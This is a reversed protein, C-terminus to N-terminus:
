GLKIPVSVHCRAQACTSDLPAFHHIEVGHCSVCQVNRLVSSDSELHTRHGATQSIRQWVEKQGTIHCRACVGNPVRAHPGIREPRDSVWLYLQRASAFISQQHCDHCSLSDHESQVFRQYAPGMVHCGTCFGNDHQMYNWSVRGFATAGLVLVATAGLLAYQVPRRRTALWQRITRRRRWLYVALWAAVGAAVFVGGIQVWQPVSQLLFRVVSAVGGPLPPEIPATHAQFLGAGSVLLIGPGPTLNMRSISGRPRADCWRSRSRCVGPPAWRVASSRSCPRRRRCGGRRRRTSPPSSMSTRGCCRKPSSRTTCATRSTATPTSSCGTQM